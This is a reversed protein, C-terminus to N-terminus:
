QFCERQKKQKEREDYVESKRDQNTDKDAQLKLICYDFFPFVKEMSINQGATVIGYLITEMSGSDHDRETAAYSEIGKQINEWTAEIILIVIDNRLRINMYARNGEFDEKVALRISQYES